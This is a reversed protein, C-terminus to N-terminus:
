LACSAEYKPSNLLGSSLGSADSARNAVSLDSVRHSVAISCRVPSGSLKAVDSATDNGGGLSYRSLLATHSAGAGTASSFNPQDAYAMRDYEMASSASLGDLDDPAFMRMEQEPAEPAAANTRAADRAGSRRKMWVDLSYLFLDLVAKALTLYASVVLCWAAIQLLPSGSAVKTAIGVSMAVVAVMMLFGVTGMILNDLLPAYPRFVALALFYGIFMACFLINRATCHTDHPPQWVSLLAVFVMMSTELVMWGTKGARYSEFVVGYREAFYSEEGVSVWVVDGYVLVYLKRRWGLLKTGPASLKLDPQPVACSPVHRVVGGYLLLPSMICAVTLVFAYGTAAQSFDPPLGMSASVLCTGQLLFMFPIFTIGPSRLFGLARELEIGAARSIGAAVAYLVGAFVIVFLPNAISAGVMYQHAGSGVGFALPHFEWDLKKGTELDIDDVQCGFNSLMALKGGTALGGLSMGGLSGASAATAGQQLQERAAKPMAVGNAYPSRVGVEFAAPEPTQGAPQATAEQAAPAATASPAQTAQAAAPAPTDQSAPGAAPEATPAGTPEATLVTAPVPEATAAAGPAETGNATPQSTPPVDTTPVATPTDTVMPLPPVPTPYVAPPVPTAAPPNNLCDGPGPSGRCTTFDPLRSLAQRSCSLPNNCELSCQRPHEPCTYVSDQCSSGGECVRTCVPSLLCHLSNGLCANNGTCTQTCATATHCVAISQQCSLDATCDISLTSAGTLGGTTTTNSCSEGASCVLNCQSRSCDITSDSCSRWATCSIDCMSGPCVVTREQCARTAECQTDLGGTVSGIVVQKRCAMSEGCSIQATNTAASPLIVNTLECSQQADCNLTLAGTEGGTVNARQCSYDGTCLISCRGVTPCSFSADQCSSHGSCEIDLNTLAGVGRTKLGACAYPDCNINVGGLGQAHMIVTVGPCARDECDLLFSGRGSPCYVTLRDCAERYNCDITCDGTKCTAVCSACDSTSDCLLTDGDEVAAVGGVCRVDAAWAAPAVLFAVCCMALARHTKM